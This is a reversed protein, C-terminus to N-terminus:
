PALTVTRWISGNYFRLTGDSLVAIDGRAAISPLSGLSELHLPARTGLSIFSGGYHNQSYGVVGSGSYSNGTVGDSSTSHGYVGYNSSSNGYVGHGSASEGFVGPSSTSQGHVGSNSSSAGYVGMGSTSAGHVGVLPSSGFVGAGESSHGAVGHGGVSTGYVGDGYGSSDGWVGRSGSGYVGVGDGSSSDGRVGSASGNGHVGVGDVSMSHGYVGVSGFSIGQVGTGFESFGDVGTSVSSEGYVGSGNISSAFVGYQGLRASTNIAVVGAAVTTKNLVANCDAVTGVCSYVGVERGTTSDNPLAAATVLLGAVDRKTATLSLASAPVALAGAAPDRGAVQAQLAPKNVDGALVAINDRLVGNVPIAGQLPHALNVQGEFWVNSLPDFVVTSGYYTVNAHFDASGGCTLGGDVFAGSNLWSFGNVTTEGYVTAGGSKVTLGVPPPVGPTQRPDVVVAGHTTTTKSELFLADLMGLSDDSVGKACVHLSAPGAVPTWQMFGDSKYPTYADAPYLSGGEPHTYFDFYGTGIQNAALTQRDATLRHAYHAQAAVDAQHTQQAKVAFNSKLAYPVTGIPIPKLPAGSLVLQFQLDPTQAVINDLVCGTPQFDLNLISNMVKVKGYAQSCKASGASDLLKVEVNLLEGEAIPMKAQSIRAQFKIAGNSIQIGTDTIGFSCPMPALDGLECSIGADAAAWVNTGLWVSTILAGIACVGIRAATRM